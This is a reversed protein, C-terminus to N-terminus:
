GFRWRPRAQGSRGRRHSVCRGAAARESCPDQYPRASPRACPRRMREYLAELAMQASLEVDAEGSADSIRYEEGNWMVGITCCEELPFIQEARQAVYALRAIFDASNSRIEFACSLFRLRETLVLRDPGRPAPDEPM